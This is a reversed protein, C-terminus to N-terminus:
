GGRGGEGWGAGGEEREAKLARGVGWGGSMVCARQGGGGKGSRRADWRGGGWRLQVVVAGQSRLHQLQVVVHDLVHDRRHKGIVDDYVLLAGGETHVQGVVRGHGRVHPARGVLGAEVVVRLEIVGRPFDVKPHACAHEHTHMRATTTNLRPPPALHPLRPPSAHLSGPPRTLLCIHVHMRMCQASGGLGAGHWALWM